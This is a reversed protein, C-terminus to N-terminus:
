RRRRPEVGQAEHGLVLGLVLALGPDRDAHARPGEESPKAHGGDEERGIPVALEVRGGDLVLEDGRPPHGEKHPVAQPAEELGELAADRVGHADVVENPVAAGVGAAGGGLPVEHDGGVDLIGGAQGRGLVLDHADGDVPYRRRDHDALGRRPGKQGPGLADVAADGVEM